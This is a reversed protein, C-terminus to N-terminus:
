LTKAFFLKKWIKKYANFNRLNKSGVQAENVRSSALKPAFQRLKLGDQAIKFRDQPSCIGVEAVKPGVNAKKVRDKVWKPAVHVLMRGLHAGTPRDVCFHVLFTGVQGWKSRGSPLPPPTARPGMVTWVSVGAFPAQEQVCGM